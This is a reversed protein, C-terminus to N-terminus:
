DKKKSWPPNDLFKWILGFALFVTVPWGIAQWVKIVNDTIQGLDV